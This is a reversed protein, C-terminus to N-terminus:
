PALTKRARIVPYVPCDGAVQLDTGSPAQGPDAGEGALIAPQTYTVRFTLNQELYSCDVANGIPQNALDFLQTTYDPLCNAQVSALGNVPLFLGEGNPDLFAPDAGPLHPPM